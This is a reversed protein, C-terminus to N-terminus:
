FPLDNEQAETQEPQTTQPQEPAQQPYYLSPKLEGIYAAETNPQNKDPTARVYHTHGYVSPTRRERVEVNLYKKGNAATRILEKPIDSLCISGYLNPNSM